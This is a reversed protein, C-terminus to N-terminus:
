RRVGSAVAAFPATVRSGSGQVVISGLILSYDALLPRRLDVHGNLTELPGGNILLGVAHIEPVNLVVSDVIAYIALMEEMSGGGLGDALASNFDLYAVGDDLVFAQRLLVGAPLARLAEDSTPGEILDNVIQKVRDGPTSTAFIERFEGVLGSELASPFYIEVQNRPLPDIEEAAKAAAAREAEEAAAAEPDDTGAAEIGGAVSGAEGAADDAPAGEDDGGCGTAAALVLLLL